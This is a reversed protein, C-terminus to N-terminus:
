MLMFTLFYIGLKFSCHSVCLVMVSIRTVIMMMRGQTKKVAVSGSIDPGCVRNVLFSIIYFHIVSLNKIVTLFHTSFELYSGKCKSEIRNKIKLPSSGSIFFIFRFILCM